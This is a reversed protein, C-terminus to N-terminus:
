PKVALVSCPSDLLIRQANSGLVLKGVPSRRRLGIVLLQAEVETATRILDEAPELVSVLPRLDFEVGSQELLARVEATEEEAEPTGENASRRSMVVVLPAERLRSEETARELAARGEPKPVYGVVVSGTM